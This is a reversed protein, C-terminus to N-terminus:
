RGERHPPSPADPRLKGRLIQAFRREMSEVEHIYGPEHDAADHNTVSMAAEALRRVLVAMRTKPEKLRRPTEGMWDHSM